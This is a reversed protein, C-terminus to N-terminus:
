YGSQLINSFSVSFECDLKAFCDGTQCACSEGNVTCNTRGWIRGQWSSGVTLNKSDGPQLEFGGTGPGVGAQTALGPWITTDCQNAIVLSIRADNNTPPGRKSVDAQKTQEIFRHQWNGLPSVGSSASICDALSLLALLLIAFRCDPSRCFDFKCPRNIRPMGMPSHAASQQVM